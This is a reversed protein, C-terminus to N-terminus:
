NLRITLLVFAIRIRPIVFKNNSTHMYGDIFNLRDKNVQVNKFENDPYLIDDAFLVYKFKNSANVLNNIYIYLFADSLGPIGFLDLKKLM